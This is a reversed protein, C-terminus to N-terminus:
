LNRLIHNALIGNSKAEEDSIQDGHDSRFRFFYFFARIGVKRAANRVAQGVEENRNWLVIVIRAGPSVIINLRNSFTLSCFGTDYLFYISDEHPTTQWTLKYINSCHNFEVTKSPEMQPAQVEDFTMKPISLGSEKIKKAVSPFFVERFGGMDSNANIKMTITFIQPIEQVNYGAPLM